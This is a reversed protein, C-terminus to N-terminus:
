QQQCDNSIFCNICGSINDKDEGGIFGFVLQVISAVLFVLIAAIVRKVFLMQSKKIEDEKQQIVAKGMDLVGFFILVVPIIIKVITYVNSTVNPLMADFTIDLGGCTVTDLIFM